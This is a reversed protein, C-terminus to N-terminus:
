ITNLFEHLKKNFKADDLANHENSQKPYNQMSKITNLKDKFTEVKIDQNATIKQINAFSNVKDDLMVKLDRSFMPFGKPLNIMKGFLWCFVVWDYAGYYTYFEPDSKYPDMSATIKGKLNRIIVKNLCFEKVENAIQKNTKGYKNILGKFKKFNTSQISEKFQNLDRLWWLKIDIKDFPNISSEKLEQVLLDFFIPKLVNERIWYEKEQYIGKEKLAPDTKKYQVRNWAEELNFEKSIVYYERNDESIIGISILDITPKTEKLSGFFTRKSQTGEIFECDMFYNM